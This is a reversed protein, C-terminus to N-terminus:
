KRKMVFYYCNMFTERTIMPVEVVCVCVCVYMCVVVCMGEQGATDLLELVSLENDIRVTKAYIDQLPPPPLPPTLIFLLLLLLLLLQM